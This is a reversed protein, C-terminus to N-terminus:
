GFYGLVGVLDYYRDVITLFRPNKKFFFGFAKGM